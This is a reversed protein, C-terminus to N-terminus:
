AVDTIGWEKELLLKAALVVCDDKHQIGYASYNEFFGPKVSECHVCTVVDCHDTTEHNAVIAEAFRKTILLM